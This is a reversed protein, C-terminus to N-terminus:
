PSLEAVLEAAPMVDEIRAVTEGAYLAGADLLSAPADVTPAAPGLLRSTPRQAASMRAQVAAPVYRAGPALAANLVRNLAPGRPDGDLWRETAANPVVRHPAPWGAGFLETLVTGEAGLLREKYGPHARSEESLLFRTGAVAAVAGADLARRVDAAEAIGGAVLVPYDRPVTARVRELLELAPIGGRVHGGAEVGQVIVGDAGAALAAEAESVSGCQHLWAGPVRRRPAGWFTVVVDAAAANQFWNRRAFPLLLNVAIPRHTLSRAAALEREISEAGLTAVTGLGGATSVAAALEHGSLGGGMGAQVVPLEVEIEGLRM